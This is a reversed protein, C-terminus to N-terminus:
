LLQKSHITFAPYSHLLNTGKGDNALVQSTSLMRIDSTGVTRSRFKIQVVESDGTFGPNPTGCSIHVEGRINDFVNDAYFSCFSQETTMNSIAFMEPNFTLNIGVTNIANGKTNLHLEATFETGVNVGSPPSLFYFDATKGSRSLLNTVKNPGSILVAGTILVTVGTVFGKLFRGRHKKTM